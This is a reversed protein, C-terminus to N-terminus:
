QLMDVCSSERLIGNDHYFTQMPGLTFEASNNSRVVKVNKYFQNKVMVIFEKLFKGAESRDKM